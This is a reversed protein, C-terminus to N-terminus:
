DKRRLKEEPPINSEDLRGGLCSFFFEPKGTELDFASFLVTIFLQHLSLRSRKLNKKKDEDVSQM